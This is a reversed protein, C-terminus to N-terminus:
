TNVDRMYREEGRGPFRQKQPPAPMLEVENCLVLKEVLVGGDYVQRCHYERQTGGPCEASGRAVVFLRVGSSEPAAKHVLIDGLNFRYDM